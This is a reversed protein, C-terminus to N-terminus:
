EAARPEWAAALKQAQAIDSQRMVRGIEDRLRTGDKSGGKSALQFYMYAKVLDKPM